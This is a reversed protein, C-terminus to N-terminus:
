CSPDSRVSVSFRIISGQETAREQCFRDFRCDKCDKDECRMKKLRYDIRSSRLRLFVLSVM